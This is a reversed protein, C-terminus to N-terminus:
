FDVKGLLRFMNNKYEEVGPQDFPNVGLNYGSIGCAKEFFMILQGVYYENIEPIDIVINPVNGTVHALRTAEEAKKNIYFMSKGELYNLKDLNDEDRTVTINGSTKGISLVTEFLMREGDQVYQGLSHLDTTNIIGAPFLGKGQKGESEGYLQKWWEIFFYWKPEYTLMIEIKKGMKYLVNRIAVYKLINNEQNNESYKTLDNIAKAGALMSSIDLGAMALPLLGVPTFVSFRGGVDDPIIFTKYGEKTSLTKLAGRSQDTIAVIRESAEKKGYKAEIANKFVRFAVAPETTVGSKSIVLIAYNKDKIYELLESHYEQSLNFGAFIIEPKKIIFYPQLLSLVAKTGLYSGGIGITVILDYKERWEKAVEMLNQDIQLDPLQLWGLFNNGAGSKDELKQLSQIAIEFETKYNQDDIFPMANDLHLKLNNM